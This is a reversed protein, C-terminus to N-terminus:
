EDRGWEEDDHRGREGDIDTDKNVWRQSVKYEM